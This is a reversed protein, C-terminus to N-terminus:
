INILANNLRQQETGNIIFYNFGYYILEKKYWNFLYERLHPNERVPDFEWPLDPYCLFYSKRYANKLFVDIWEPCQKYVHLLWVKTIILDTDFFLYDTPNVKISEETEIQKQAIHIVDDYTYPRKIQEVYFRAYEPIWIGKFHEALQKCLTTKGTSEPGIIVYTNFPLM